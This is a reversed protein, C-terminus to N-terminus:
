ILTMVPVWDRLFKLGTTGEKGDIYVVPKLDDRGVIVHAARRAHRGATGRRGEPVVGGEQDPTDSGESGTRRYGFRGEVCTKLDLAEYVDADFYNSISKFDKLTMTELLRM